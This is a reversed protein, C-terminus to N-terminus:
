SAWTGYGGWRGGVDGIEFDWDGEPLDDELHPLDREETEPTPAPEVGVVRFITRDAWRSSDGFLNEGKRACRWDDEFSVYDAGKTKRAVTKRVSELQDIPM